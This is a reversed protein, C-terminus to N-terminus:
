LCLFHALYPHHYLRSVFRSLVWVRYLSPTFVFNDSQWLLSLSVTQSYGQVLTLRLALLTHLESSHPKARKTKSQVGKIPNSTQFDLISISVSKKGKSSKM